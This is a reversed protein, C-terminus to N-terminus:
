RDDKDLYGDHNVDLRDFMAPRGMFEDRSVRGDGNKDMSTLRSLLARERPAPRDLLAKGAPREPNMWPLEDKELFGDGNRDLQNFRAPQGPFEDRSLKGDDNRDLNKFRKERQEPTGVARNMKQLLDRYEEAELKGNHNADGHKLLTDFAKRGSDPVEDSDIVRDNNADLELFIDRLPAAAVRTKSEQGTAIRSAGLGLSIVVPILWVLIARM